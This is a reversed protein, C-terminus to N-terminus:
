KANPKSYPTELYQKAAVQAAGEGGKVELAKQYYEQALAREKRVDHIMGLRVLAWARVRANYSAHDQLARILYESSRPYEGRDFYIKGMLQFCRPWLEPRFPPTGSQIGNEIERAVSFAEESRGLESFINALAFLVNYNRPFKENLERALPLAREPQKEFNAYASLLEAKALYKFLYGKQAAVEL